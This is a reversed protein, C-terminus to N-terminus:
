QYAKQFIDLFDAETATRPNSEVSVNVSARKALEPLDEAKTGLDKLSPINLDKNLKHVAKVATFAAMEPSMGDINEGMAKAIQAFKEYDSAYNYEMVYPLLVAMAVGHPTDYLGGLAEGMCHVGAIDSNGFCIGAILSGLLMNANAEKSTGNIAKRINEAIMQIAYIGCADTIPEAAKCTYGEIAHTLADMGTAAIMSPPLSEILLPDVLALKAAILPSGISMKFHRKTDTIVSWFTVESGTGVTTPIAILDCIPKQIKDLGEYDNITGGHTMLVGVAKATDMSSGGGIAVLMDADYEEAMQYAKQVTIDRPNPEIGDFIKYQIKSEALSATIKDIIGAAILGKDTIVMPRSHGMKKIEDALNQSVGEGFSIKTPLVFEFNNMM